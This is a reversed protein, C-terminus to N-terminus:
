WLRPDFWLYLSLEPRNKFLKKKSALRLLLQWLWLHHEYMIKGYLFWWWRFSLSGSDCEFHCLLLKQNYINYFLALPMNNLAFIHFVCLVFRVTVLIFDANHGRLRLSLWRGSGEKKLGKGWAECSPLASFFMGTLGKFYCRWSALRFFDLHNWVVLVAWLYRYHECQHDIINRHQLWLSLDSKLFNKGLSCFGSGRQLFIYRVNWADVM